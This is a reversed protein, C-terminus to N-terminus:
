QEILQFRIFKIIKEILFDPSIYDQKYPNKPHNLFYVRTIIESLTDYKQNKILENNETIDIKKIKKLFLKNSVIDKFIEYPDTFIYQNLIPIYLLYWIVKSKSINM